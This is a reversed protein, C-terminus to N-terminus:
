DVYRSTNTIFGQAMGLGDDQEDDANVFDGNAHIYDGTASMGMDDISGNM